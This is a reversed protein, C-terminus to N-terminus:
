YFFHWSLFASWPDVAGGRLSYLVQATTPLLPSSSPEPHPARISLNSKTNRNLMAGTFPKSCSTPALVDNMVNLGDSIFSWL